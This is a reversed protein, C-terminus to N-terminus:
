APGSGPMRVIGLLMETNLKALRQFLEMQRGMLEVFRPNSINATGTMALTAALSTIAQQDAFISKVSENYQDLTM